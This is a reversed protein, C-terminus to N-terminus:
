YNLVFIQITENENCKIIEPRGESPYKLKRAELPMDIFDNPIYMKLRGDFFDREEFQYYRGGIKVPGSCIDKKAERKEAENLFELIKEDVKKEVEGGYKFM